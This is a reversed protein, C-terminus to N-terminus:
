GKLCLPIGCVVEYVEDARASLEAHLRALDARYAESMEDYTIGDSFIQNSVIVLHKTKKQLTVLSALIRDSLSATTDWSCSETRAEPYQFFM